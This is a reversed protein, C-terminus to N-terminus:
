RGTPRPEARARRTLRYDASAGPAEGANLSCVGLTPSFDFHSRQACLTSELQSVDSEATDNFNMM